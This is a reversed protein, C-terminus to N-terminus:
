IKTYSDDGISIKMTREVDDNNLDTDDENEVKKKSIFLGIFVAVVVFIVGAMVLTFLTKNKKGPPRKKDEKKNDDEPNFNFAINSPISSIDASLSRLPIMFERNESEEKSLYIRLKQLNFVRVSRTMSALNLGLRMETDSKFFRPDLNELDEKKNVGFDASTLIKFVDRVPTPAKDSKAEGVELNYVLCLYHEQFFSSITQTQGDALVADNRVTFAIYNDMFDVRTPILNVINSLKYEVNSSSIFYGGSKVNTNFIFKSVYSYLNKGSIVCYVSKETTTPKYVCKFVVNQHTEQIDPTLSLKTDGMQSFYNGSEMYQLWFFSAKKQYQLGVILVLNNGDLRVFEFEAINDDFKKVYPFNISLKDDKLDLMYVRATFQNLNDYTSMYFRNKPADIIYVEESGIIEITLSTQEWTSGGDKSYILYIRDAALSKYTFMFFYYGNNKQVSQITLV